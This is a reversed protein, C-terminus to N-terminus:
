WFFSRKGNRSKLTGGVPASYRTYAYTSSKPSYTPKYFRRNGGFRATISSSRTEQDFPTGGRAEDVKNDELFVYVDHQEDVFAQHVRPDYTDSTPLAM